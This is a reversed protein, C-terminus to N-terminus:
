IRYHNLLQTKLLQLNEETILLNVIKRISPQVEIAHYIDSQLQNLRKYSENSIFTQTKTPKIKEMETDPLQKTESENPKYALDTLTTM